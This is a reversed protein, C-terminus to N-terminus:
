SEEDEADEFDKSLQEYNEEIRDKFREVIDESNINLVELISIEDVKKLEEFLETLTLMM